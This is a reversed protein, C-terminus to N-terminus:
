RVDLLIHEAIKLPDANIDVIGEHIIQQLSFPVMSSEPTQM